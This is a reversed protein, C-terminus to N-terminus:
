YTHPFIFDYALNKFNLFLKKLFSSKLFEKYTHIKLVTLIAWQKIESEVCKQFVRM